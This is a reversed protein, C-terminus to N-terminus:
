RCRSGSSSSPASSSCGPLGLEGAALVYANHATLFHFETYQTYGVGRIPYSMLMKIGAAACGLRELTSEEASEDHRGGLALVPSPWRSAWSAGRKWGYKKVFYAGLVAGMTVQGGRSQTFGIELGVVVLTAM